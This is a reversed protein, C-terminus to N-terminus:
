ATTTPRRRKRTPLGLLEEFAAKGRPSISTGYVAKGSSPCPSFQDLYAELGEQRFVWGRGPKSALPIKGAKARKQLTVPHLHLYEAAQTLTYTIL